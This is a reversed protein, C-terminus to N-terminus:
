SAAATTTAPESHKVEQGIADVPNILKGDATIELHLHSGDLSECPIDSLTGIVDNVKVADGKKLSTVATVGCYRSQIGFGHDISIVHGWIPDEEVALITGDALAKVEQGATGKFDAGSHIRWDNMTESYVPSDNSFDKSVENTLPLIFLEVDSTGTQIDAQTTTTPAHTTKERTTPTTRDDPVDTVVNEAAKDSASTTTLPPNGSGGDNHLGPMTSVFTAVAVGGVAVLCVALAVYFGKGTFFKKIKSDSDFHIRGM